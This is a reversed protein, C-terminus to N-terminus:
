LVVSGSKCWAMSLISQNEISPWWQRVACSSYWVHEMSQWQLWNCLLVCGHVVAGGRSNTSDSQYSTKRFGESSTLRLFMWQCLMANQNMFTKQFRWHKNCMSPFGYMRVWFQQQTVKSPKNSLINLEQTNILRINVSMVLCSIWVAQIMFTWM